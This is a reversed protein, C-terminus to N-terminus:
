RANSNNKNHNLWTFSYSYPLIRYVSYIIFFRTKRKCRLVDWIIAFAIPGFIIQKERKEEGREEMDRICVHQACMHVLTTATQFQNQEKRGIKKNRTRWLTRLLFALINQQVHFHRFATLQYNEMPLCQLADFRVYWISWRCFRRRCVSGGFHMRDIEIPQLWQINGFIM